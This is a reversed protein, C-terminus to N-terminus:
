ESDCGIGIGMKLRLMLGYAPSMEDAMDVAGCRFRGDRFTMAPCPATQQKGFMALGVECVESACCYGCGNCPEGYAPKEPAMQLPTM